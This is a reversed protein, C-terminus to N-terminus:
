CTLLLLSRVCAHEYLSMLKVGRREDGDTVRILM